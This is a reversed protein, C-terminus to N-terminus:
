LFLDVRRAWSQATTPTAATTSRDFPEIPEAGMRSVLMPDVGKLAVAASFASERAPGEETASPVLGEDSIAAESSYLRWRARTRLLRATSSARRRQCFSGVSAPPGQGGANRMEPLQSHPQALVIVQRVLPQGGRDEEGELKSPWQEQFALCPDALGLDGFNEGADELRREDAQLAVLAYVDVLCDVLPVVGALEEVNAGGFGEAAFIPFADLAVEVVALEQYATRQQLRQLMTPRHRWHQEYVLHVAGVVLELCEQQLDERVECDSYGLQAGDPGFTRRDGNQGGVSGPLDVVRELAAAEVMVYLVGAELPLDLDYAESDGVGLFSQGALDRRRRLLHASHVEVFWRADGLGEIPGFREDGEARPLEVLLEDLCGQAGNELVALVLLPGGVGAEGREDAPQTPHPSIASPSICVGGISSAAPAKRPPTRPAPKRTPVSRRTSNARAMSSISGERRSSTYQDPLIVSVERGSSM